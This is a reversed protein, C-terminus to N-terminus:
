GRGWLLLAVIAIVCLLGGALYLRRRVTELRYEYATERIHYLITKTNAKVGTNTRVLEAIAADDQELQDETVEMICGYAGIPHTHGYCNCLPTKNQVM